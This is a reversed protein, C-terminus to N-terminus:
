YARLMRPNNNPASPDQRWFQLFYQNDGVTVSVRHLGIDAGAKFTFVLQGAQSVTMLAGTSLDVPVLPDGDQEIDPPSITPIPTPSSSSEPGKPPSGTPFPTPTPPLKNPMPVDPVDTSIAGGDLVQVEAAKGYDKASLTLTITVSQNPQLAVKQFRGGDNALTLLGNQGFRVLARALQPDAKQLISLPNIPPATPTASPRPPTVTPLPGIIPLPTPTQRAPNPIIQARAPYIGALWVFVAILSSRFVQNLM